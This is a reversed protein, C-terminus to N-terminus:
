KAWDKYRKWFAVLKPTIVSECYANEQHNEFYNKHYDEAPYFVEFKKVETVIPKDFEKETTLEDIYKEAASKQAEDAFLVLSRYQTGVDHGQMNLQTPDHTHFFVDLLREYSVVDPDYDIKIVEAHGTEGTSVQEYSPNAVFGGAYGPSVATVGKLNKFIAETCWFCGGGFVASKTPM